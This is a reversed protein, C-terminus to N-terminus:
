RGCRAWLMCAMGSGHYTDDGEDEDEDEHQDTETEPDEEQQGEEEKGKGQGEGGEEGGATIAGVESIMRTLDMAQGKTM